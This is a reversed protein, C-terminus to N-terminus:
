SFLPSGECLTSTALIFETGQTSCLTAYSFGVKQATRFSSLTKTSIHKLSCCSHTSQPQRRPIYIAVYAFGPEQLIKSVLEARNRHSHALPPYLWPFYEPM